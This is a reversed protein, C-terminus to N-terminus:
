HNSKERERRRLYDMLLKITKTQKDITEDKVDILLELFEVKKKLEEIEENMM